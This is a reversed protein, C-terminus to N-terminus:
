FVYDPYHIMFWHTDTRTYARDTKEREKQACRMTHQSLIM